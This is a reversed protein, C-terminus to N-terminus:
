IMHNVRQIAPTHHLDTLSFTALLTEIPTGPAYQMLDDASANWAHQVPAVVRWAARVQAASVFASHDNAIAARIVREYTTAAHVDKYIIEEGGASVVRVTTYKAALAKGTALTIPVHQWQLDRSTLVLSAFTETSSDQNGVEHTYGEYQGRIAADVSLDALARVRETEDKGGILLALLALLHSQVFDRLAGTQEYFNRRGEIGLSESAIIEVRAIGGKALLAHHEAKFAAINEAFDKAVYHDMLYVQEIPLTHEILQLFDEATETDIGFPKELIVNTRELDFSGLSAVITRSTHPPVALYLIHQAQIGWSTEIDAIVSALRAYEQPVTSDMQLMSCHTYDFGEPIAVNRQRSVCILHFRDPLAGQIFLTRLAPLLKRTALDGTAGIITLITPSTSTM